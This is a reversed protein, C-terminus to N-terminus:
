TATTQRLRSPSTRCGCRRASPPWWGRRSTRARCPRGGAPPRARVAGRVARGAHRLGAPAGPAAARRAAAPLARRGRRRASSRCCPTAPAASCRGRRRGRRRPVGAGRRPDAGRLGAHPRDRRRHRVVARPRRRDRRLGPHRGVALVLRGDPLPRVAVRRAVLGPFWGPAFYPLSSALDVLSPSRWATSWGSPRGGSRRRRLGAPLPPGPRRRGGRPRRLLRGWRRRRPAATARRSRGRRVGALRRLGGLVRGSWRRCSGATPSVDGARAAGPLARAAECRAARRRGAPQRRAGPRRHGRAGPRPVHRGTWAIIRTPPGALLVFAATALWVLALLLDTSPRSGSSAHPLGHRHLTAAITPEIGPLSLACVSVALLLVLSWGVRSAPQRLDAAAVETQMRVPHTM